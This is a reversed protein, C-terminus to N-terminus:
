YSRIGNMNNKNFYTFFGVCTCVTYYTKSDIQDSKISIYM